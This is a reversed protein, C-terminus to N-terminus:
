SIHSFYVDTMKTQIIHLWASLVLRSLADNTDNKSGELRGHILYNGCM